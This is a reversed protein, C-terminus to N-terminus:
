ALLNERFEASEMIGERIQELSENSNLWFSMGSDDPDRSLLVSYFMGLTEARFEKSHVFAAAVGGRGMSNLANKWAALESASGTRNLLLMYLAQFFNDDADGTSAVTQARNFFERSALIGALVQEEAEGSMLKQVWFQEEGNVAERGLFRQFLHKVMNTRAALSEEIGKVVGAVGETSEVKEWYPLESSEAARGLRLAFLQDILMDTPDTDIRTIHTTALTVGSPLASGVLVNTGNTSGNLTVSALGAAPHAHITLVFLTDGGVANVVLNKKNAFQIPAFAASQEAADTDQISGDNGPTTQEEGPDSNANEATQQDTDDDLARQESAQIVNTTTGNIDRAQRLHIMKNTDPANITLTDATMTDFIRSVSSLTVTASITGSIIALSGASATTGATFTENVTAKPNGILMLTTKGPLGEDLDFKIPLGATTAVLGNSEDITFRDRGGAGNVDIETIGALAADVFTSGGNDSLELTTADGPKLRVELKDPGSSGTITAIGTNAPGSFAVSLLTRNELGEVSPRFKWDVPPLKARRLSKFLSMPMNRRQKLLAFYTCGFQVM